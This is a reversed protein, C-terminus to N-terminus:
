SASRTLYVRFQMAAFFQRPPELGARALLSAIAAESEPVKLSALGQAMHTTFEAPAGAWRLRHAEVATLVPDMGVRCGFVFPAGPKLRRVVERLLALRGEEDGVHHLVGIMQAGDFRPGEPLSDLTGVHLHTRELLGATALRTRAVALMDPSPDVGTFRWGPAGQKVYPLLELGTGVGVSLVSATDQGDLLAALVSAIAEHMAQTGIFWTTAQTDYQAAREPGFNRQPAAHSHNEHSHNEHSHM